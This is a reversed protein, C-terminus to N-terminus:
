AEGIRCRDALIIARLADVAVGIHDNVIVADYDRAESLEREAEAIRRRIDEASETGRSRLRAELVDLSPPMILVLRAEPLRRRVERAGKTEIKLIVDTGSAVHEPIPGFPTGYRYQLFGATELFWGAAEREMFEDDSLFHYDVGDVEGQRPPRTTATVIRALGPLRNPANMLERLVVDKGVGSPGSVVFVRGRPSTISTIRNLDARLM